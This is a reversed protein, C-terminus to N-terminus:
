MHQSVSVVPNLSKVAQLLPTNLQVHLHPLSLYDERARRLFIGESEFTDNEILSEQVARQLVHNIMVEYKLTEFEPYESRM